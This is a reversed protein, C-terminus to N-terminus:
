KKTANDPLEPLGAWRLASNIGEFVATVAPSRAILMNAEVRAHISMAVADGVAEAATRRRPEPLAGLTTATAQPNLNLTPREPGVPAAPTRAPASAPAQPAPTPSTPASAAGSTTRTAAPTKPIADSM